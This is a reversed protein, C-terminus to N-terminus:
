DRCKQIDVTMRILLSDLAAYVLMTKLATRGNEEGLEGTELQVPLVEGPHRQNSVGHRGGAEGLEGAFQL